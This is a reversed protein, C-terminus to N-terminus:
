NEEEEKNDDKDKNLAAAAGLGIGLGYLWDKDKKEDKIEEQNTNNDTSTENSNLLEDNDDENENESEEENKKKMYVGLGGATAGTAGLGAMIPIIGASSKKVNSSSTSPKVSGLASKASATIVDTIDEETDGNVISDLLEEDEKSLSELTSTKSSSGSSAKFSAGSHTTTSEKKTNNISTTADTKSTETGETTTSVTSTPSVTTSSTVTSTATENTLNSMLSSIDYSDSTNKNDILMLLALKNKDVNGNDDFIDFGYLEIIKTRISSDKKYLSELKSSLEELETKSVSVKGNKIKLIEEDSYGVEKLKAEIATKTSSPLNAWEEANIYYNELDEATTEQLTNNELTSSLGETSLSAATGLTAATTQLTSDGQYKTASNSIDKVSTNTATYDDYTNQIWNDFIDLNGLNSSLYTNETKINNFIDDYYEIIRKDM